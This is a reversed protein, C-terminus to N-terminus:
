GAAGMLGLAARAYRERRKFGVLFSPAALFIVDRALGSGKAALM